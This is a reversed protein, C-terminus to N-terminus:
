IDYEAERLMKQVAALGFGRNKETDAGNDRPNAGFEAYLQNVGALLPMHMPEHVNMSKKPNAAIRTVAAIKAMELETIENANEFVTGPVNVRRMAAMVEVGYDRARIMEEALEEYTHEPGIPEVCYYLNLGAEKIANLTGIRQSKTIDTDIGERLRCIHYAAFFGAAKLANAYEPGFDGINAVMHIDHPLIARVAKGVSLFKEKGYDATTMLFLAEVKEKAINQAESVVQPLDKEFRAGVSFGSESLSCFRCRGSCPESNIGIQAFIYGKNKYEARSLGNAISLLRYFDASSNKINLLGVADEKALPQKAAIKDFIYDIL